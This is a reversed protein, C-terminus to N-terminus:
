KFSLEVEKDLAAAIENILRFSPLMKGTEIRAITSQPKGVKDALQQQTLGESERLHTMAAAIDLKQKEELFGRLFEPSRKTEEKLIDDTWSM